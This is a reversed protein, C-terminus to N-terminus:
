LAKNILVKFLKEGVLVTCLCYMFLKAPNTLNPRCKMAKYSKIMKM